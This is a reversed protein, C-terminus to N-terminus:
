DETAPRPRIWRSAFLGLEFLLCLPIALLLQSLPDPPTTIAAVVFAGVIVYPRSKILTDRPVVGMGVLVVVVVPVEFTLGFAIFMNIVFNFYAEIDPMVVIASPANQQIFGFVVPFVFFYAFAMGILFLLVSSIIIPLMWRKEHQYLGPAVFAWIQYLVMPLMLVFSVWFSLKVPVLFSSIVGTAILGKSGQPMVNLIPQSLANYIDNRFFFLVLFVSGVAILVRVLRDRLEMLHSLFHDGNESSSM